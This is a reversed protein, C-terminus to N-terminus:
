IELEQQKKLQAVLKNVVGKSDVTYFESILKGTEKCPFVAEVTKGRCDRSIAIFASVPEQFTQIFGDAKIKFFETKCADAM